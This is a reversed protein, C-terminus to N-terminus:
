PHIIIADILEDICNTVLLNSKPSNGKEYRVIADAIQDPTRSSFTESPKCIEHVFPLDSAIVDCGAMIAEIIGLGLSENVSPYVIAKSLGYLEVIDSFPVNGHNIINLGEAVACEITSCFPQFDSVTLHLIPTIGESALRRWAMILEDHGRTGTYDGVLVYDKRKVHHSGVSLFSDPINYFPLKLITKNSCPLVKRLCYETNQTQIIWTDTNDAYYAIYRQKAWAKIKCTLSFEKPINLLNVNHFYTSVPCPMKIPPPINAFCLVSSFDNLHEYYFQQRAKITSPLEAILEIRDQDDLKPCIDEKLLFFYVNKELLCHVLYNLLGKGGGANIHLSDVLLPKM